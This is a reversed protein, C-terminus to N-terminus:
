PSSRQFTQAGRAEIGAALWQGLVINQGPYAAHCPRFRASSCCAFYSYGFVSLAYLGRPPNPLKEPMM